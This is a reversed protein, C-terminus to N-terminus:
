SADGQFIKQRRHVKKNLCRPPNHLNHLQNREAEGFTNEFFEKASCFAFFRWLEM